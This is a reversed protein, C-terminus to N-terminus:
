VLWYDKFAVSVLAFVMLAPTLSWGLETLTSAHFTSQETRRHQWHTWLVAAFALVLMLTCMLLSFERATTLDPM